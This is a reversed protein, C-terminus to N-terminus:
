VEQFSISCNWYYENNNLDRRILDESYNTVLVNYSQETYSTLGNADLNRIKLVHVKPDSGIKEIYDRGACRDVTNEMKGPIFSWEIDFTRKNNAVNFYVGRNGNARESVVSNINNSFSTVRNHESLPISDVSFFPKIDSSDELRSSKLVNISSSFVKSAASISSSTITVIAM